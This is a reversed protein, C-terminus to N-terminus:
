DTVPPGSRGAQEVAALISSASHGSALESVAGSQSYVPLIGDGGSHAWVERRVFIQHGDVCYGNIVLM